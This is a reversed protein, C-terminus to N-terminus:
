QKIFKSRGVEGNNYEIVIQYMGTALGSIDITNSRNQENLLLMKGNLDYIYMQRIEADIIIQVQDNAPNPLVKLTQRNEAVSNFIKNHIVGVADLDFGGGEFPTPFPDNILHGQSDRNGYLPNVSGVVDIIRIHTINNKDLLANNSLEAIDFPTGYLARYKGALNHIKTADTTEYGGTQTTSDILSVSPFRFFHIGDSSAEVFALELFNDNFSNEFIAFDYGNADVLPTQFTLVAMGKDGLSVVVNDAMGTADSSLGYSAKNNGNLYFTTDSINLYGRYLVCEQAWEVFINSDAAIATSGPMGAPPPYQGRLWVPSISIILAFILLRERM